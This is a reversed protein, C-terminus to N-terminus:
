VIQGAVFPRAILFGLNTIANLVAQSEAFSVRGLPTTSQLKQVLSDFEGQGNIYNVATGPSSLVYGFTAIASLVVGVEVLTLRSMATNATLSATISNLEPTTVATM